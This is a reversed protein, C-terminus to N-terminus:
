NPGPRYYDNFIQSNILWKSTLGGYFNGRVTLNEFEYSRLHYGLRDDSNFITGAIEITPNASATMSLSIEDGSGTNEKTLVWVRVKNEYVPSFMPGFVLSDGPIVTQAKLGFSMCLSFLLSLCLVTKKM